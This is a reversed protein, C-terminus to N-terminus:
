GGHAWVSSRGVRELVSLPLGGLFNILIRWGGDTECYILRCLSFTSIHPRLYLVELSDPYSQTRERGMRIM